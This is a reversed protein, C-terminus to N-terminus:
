VKLGGARAGEALQKVRGHYKYGGRDFVVSEIKLARAKSAILQGVQGSQDSKKGPKGSGGNKGGKGKLELSSAAALTRGHQDDILQAYIHTGSRFVSLRPRAATGELVSRVRGHRLRRKQRKLKASVEKM